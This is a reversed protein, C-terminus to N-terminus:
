QQLVTGAQLRRHHTDRALCILLAQRGECVADGPLRPQKDPKQCNGTKMLLEHRTKPKAYPLNVQAGPRAVHCPM